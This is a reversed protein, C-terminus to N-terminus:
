PVRSTSRRASTVAMTSPSPDSRAVTVSGYRSGSAAGTAGPTVQSSSTASGALEGELLHGGVVGEVDQVGGAGGPQGLGDHVAVAADEELVELDQGQV